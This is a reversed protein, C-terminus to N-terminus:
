FPWVNNVMRSLWGQGSFHSEPGRGQYCVSFNAVYQSLVTNDARVDLPRVIGSVVLSRKEGSVLRTRKGGVVLNGNPLVDIVSVTIRDSLDRAVRYSSNGDFDRSSNTSADVSSTESTDFFFSASSTKELEREDRNDVDTTERVVITILDGVRRAQTDYFMFVMSPNRRNWPSQAQVSPVTACLM